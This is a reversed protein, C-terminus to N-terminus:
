AEMSHTWTPLPNQSLFQVLPPSGYFRVSSGVRFALASQDVRLNQARANATLRSLLEANDADSGSAARADFVCFNIWDGTTARQRLHAFNVKM